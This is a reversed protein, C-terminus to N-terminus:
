DHTGEIPESLALLVPGVLQQASRPGRTSLQFYMGEFVDLLDATPLRFRIGFHAAMEDIFRVLYPRFDSAIAEARAALDPSRVSRLRIEMLTVRFDESPAIIAFFESLAAGLAWEVRADVPPASFAKSLGAMVVDRHHELIAVCVDDKSTFNSYFAGRTFAAAECLQEVSTADVGHAAFASIGALVLRQRTAERRPTTETRPTTDTM